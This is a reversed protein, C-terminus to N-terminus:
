IQRDVLSNQITHLHEGEEKLLFCSWFNIKGMGRRKTCTVVGKPRRMQRPKGGSRSKSELHTEGIFWTSFRTIFWTHKVLSLDWATVNKCM